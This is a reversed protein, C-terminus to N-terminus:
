GFNTSVPEGATCALEALMRPDEVYTVKVVQREDFYYPFAEKLRDSSAGVGTLVYLPKGMAYAMFAEIVTGVGGGLVVVVDASRVLHVSRCRYECGTKIVVAGEPFNVDEREIPVLLVARLGRALAADVVDKMHGWYGGLLLVADPCKQSLAEIFLEIKQRLGEVYNSHVAIAIQRM